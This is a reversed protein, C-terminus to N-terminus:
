NIPLPVFRIRKNTIPNWVMHKTVIAGRLLIKSRPFGNTIENIWWEFSAKRNKKKSKLFVAFKRKIHHNYLFPNRILNNYKLGNKLVDIRFRSNLM